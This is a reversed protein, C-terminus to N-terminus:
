STQWVLDVINLNELCCFVTLSFPKGRDFMFFDDEIENRM